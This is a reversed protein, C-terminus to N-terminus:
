ILELFNSIKYLGQIFWKYFIVGWSILVVVYLMKAHPWMQKGCVGLL